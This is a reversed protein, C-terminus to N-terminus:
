LLVKSVFENPIDRFCGVKSVGGNGKLPEYVRM